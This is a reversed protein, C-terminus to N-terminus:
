GTSLFGCRVQDQHTISSSSNMETELFEHGEGDHMEGVRQPFFLFGFTTMFIVKSGLIIVM